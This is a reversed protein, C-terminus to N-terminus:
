LLTVISMGIIAVAGVAVLATTGVAVVRRLIKKKM